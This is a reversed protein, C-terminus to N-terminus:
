TIYTRWNSCKPWSRACFCTKRCSFQNYLNLFHMNSTWQIKLKSLYESKVSRGPMESKGMLSVKRSINNFSRHKLDGGCLRIIKSKFYWVTKYLIVGSCVSNIYAQNLLLYYLYKQVYHIFFIPTFSEHSGTSLMGIFFMLFFRGIGM